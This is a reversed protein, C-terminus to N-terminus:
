IVESDVHLSLMPKKLMLENVVYKIAL